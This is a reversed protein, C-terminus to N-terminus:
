ALGLEMLKERTPRGDATWGRAAYYDPLMADLDVTVGASPGEKHAEEMLRKPLTDDAATLGAKLNWLREINWIREGIHVFDDMTYDVGTAASLVPILDDLPAGATTFMCIGTADHATTRNQEEAVWVSKGDTGHPDYEGSTEIGPTWARLHCAGRNCTAYAVGMGQFGRPDYAPFEQGKVGMFYEPHEFKDTMRKSGEALEDGFGERFGTAETMAILAKGDGFRLAMGTQEDSLLGREYMEMATALTAGMSIPDMGLDNCLYNAMVIADMDDVGCDAGLSWLNEYEPGEGAVKWNRPHMNVMYKDAAPSVQTVRGCAINCAFCAKNAILWNDKISEGNIAETGEFQGATFNRTPLGGFTNVLDVTPATGLETLGQRGPSEALHEHYSWIASMYDRPRAIRVGQNGRVAIAKLNKSGMVAGVGSRGAARHKDNVICAFRVLNEGAPGIGALRLEPMGTEDRIADETESVVKGWVGAADRIEVRDDDVLLYCPREARGELIVMDYGAFKLEPGWHGGSNSTTIAGTLPGKTVVMYRSGCSANTGTLPGTAMILKNDPGLADVSPDMEEYLYRAALGRGGIYEEAWDLRLPEKTTEGRSLDVRLIHGAWGHTM